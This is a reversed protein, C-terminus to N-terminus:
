LARVGWRGAPFDFLWDGQRILPVGVILELPGPLESNFESLDIVIAASAGFGVGGIACPALTARWGEVDDGGSDHGALRQGLAVVAQHRRAFGLDVVTLSAGSDWCATVTVDAITVLVLPQGGAYVALPDLVWSAPVPEDIELGVDAPHFRCRHRGLVNM